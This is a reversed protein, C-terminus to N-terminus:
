NTPNAFGELGFPVIQTSLLFYSHSQGQKLGRWANIVYYLQSHGRAVKTQPIDQMVLHFKLLGKIFVLCSQTDMFMKKAMVM